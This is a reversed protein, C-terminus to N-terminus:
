KVSIVKSQMSCVVKLSTDTQLTLTFRKESLRKSYNRATIEAMGKQIKVVCDVTNRSSIATSNWKGTPSYHLCLDFDPGCCPGRARDIVFAHPFSCYKMKLFRPGLLATM